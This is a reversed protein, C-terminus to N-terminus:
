GREYGDAGLQAGGTAISRRGGTTRSRRSWARGRDGLARRAARVSPCRCSRKAKHARAEYERVLALVFEADPKEPARLAKLTLVGRLNDDLRACESEARAVRAELLALLEDAERKEDARRAEAADHAAAVARSEERCQAVARLM